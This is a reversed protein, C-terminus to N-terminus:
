RCGAANAQFVLHCGCIEYGILQLHKCGNADGPDFPLWIHGCVVAFLCPELPNVRNCYIMSVTIESFSKLSHM